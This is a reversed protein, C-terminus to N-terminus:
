ERFVAIFRTYYLSTTGEFGSDTGAFVWAAGEGDTTVSLVEDDSDLVKLEYAPDEECDRTNAIHGLALADAGGQSQEGKDVNMRYFGDEDQPLPEATSAGAKLTVSEGPAGGIGACGSPAATAIEVEFAVEYQHNPVLGTVRRKVYMFLDDSHNNGSLYIASRNAGLSNPLLRYEAALEYFDEEGVPYDAFDATWGQLGKTFDVDLIRDGDRLDADSCAGLALVLLAVGIREREM